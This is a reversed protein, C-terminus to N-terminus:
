SAEPERGHSQGGDEDGSGIVDSDADRETNFFLHAANIRLEAAQACLQSAADHILRAAQRRQAVTQARELTRQAMSLAHLTGSLAHADKALDDSVGAARSSGTSWPAARSTRDSENGQGFGYSNGEATTM